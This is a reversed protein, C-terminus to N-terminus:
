NSLHQIAYNAQDPTFKEGSDSTLQDRIEETSMDEEKQYTEASKLANENWDAKLHDVAFQADSQSFKDGSDSTLQDLIGQKSMHMDSSYTKASNLAARQQATMKPESKSSSSSESSSSSSSDDSSGSSMGIFMVGLLIVAVWVWIRKYFPKKQVYVNGNEDKIKKAM